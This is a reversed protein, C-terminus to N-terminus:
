WFREERHHVATTRKLQIEALDRRCAAAEATVDQLGEKVAAFQDLLLAATHRIAEVIDATGRCPMDEIAQM